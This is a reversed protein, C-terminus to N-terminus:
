FKLVAPKIIKLNYEKYDFQLLPILNILGISFKLYQLHIKEFSDDVVQSPHLQAEFGGSKEDQAQRTQHHNYDNRNQARTQNQQIM